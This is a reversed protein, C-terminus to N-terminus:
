RSSTAFTLQHARVITIKDALSSGGDVDMADAMVFPLIIICFVFSSAQM